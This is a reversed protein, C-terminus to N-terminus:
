KYNTLTQELSHIFERLVDNKNRETKQCYRELITVDQETIEIILQQTIEQNELAKAKQQLQEFYDIELSDASQNFAEGDDVDSLPQLGQDLASLSEQVGLDQAQEQWQQVRNIMGEYETLQRAKEEQDIEIKFLKQVGQYIKNAYGGKEFRDVVIVSGATAILGIIPAAIPIWVARIFLVFGIGFLGGIAVIGTFGFGVPHRIRWALTGGILSWGAIWLMEGWETWFRFLPRDDLVASLIQSVIQAHVVVGPMKFTEQQGASYPTFFDDKKSPATYGVLVIRDNIWTPDIKGELVQTLTVQKAVTEASRYNLLIQYGGVDAKQYGGDNEKIRSFVTSGLMLEDATTFEPQILLPQLYRLALQFGLSLLPGSSDDCLSDTNADSSDAPTNSPAPSIFLLSRRIIGDTDIVQDSFGVREEPIGPPPPVGPNDASGTKCVAIINGSHQFRKLLDARGTGIPVDRFIDLGIALPQYEQLKGLLRNLTQDSLTAQQIEQIDKETIAVVLLREDSREDPRWRMMQDFAGLEVAELIGMQRIGVVLTAIVASTLVVSRGFDLVASQRYNLTRLLSGVKQSFKSSM